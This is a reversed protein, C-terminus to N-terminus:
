RIAICFTRALAIRLAAGVGTDHERFQHCGGGGAHVASQRWNSRQSRGDGRETGGGRRRLLHLTARSGCLQLDGTGFWRDVGWVYFAEPTTDIPGNLTATFLFNAGILTVQSSCM